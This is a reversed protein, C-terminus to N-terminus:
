PGCAPDGAACAVVVLLYEGAHAAGGSVFSDVVLTYRGAPLTRQQEPGSEDQEQDCSPYRDFARAGARTDAAHTFPLRDVVFPRASSGDGDLPPPAGDPAPEGDVVRRARDLMELGPLPSSALYPSFWPLQRAEAIGRTVADFTPVWRVVDASHARPNLGTVLPVIGQQQLTDLLLSFNEYFAFLAHEYTTGLEM